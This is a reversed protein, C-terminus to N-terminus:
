YEDGKFESFDEEVPDLEAEPNFAKYEEIGRKIFRFIYPRFVYMAYWIYAPVFFINPLYVVILTWTWKAYDRKRCYNWVFLYIIFYYAILGIVGLLVYFWSSSDMNVLRIFFGQNNAATTINATSFFANSKGMFKILARFLYFVQQLFLIAFLIFAATEYPRKNNVIADKERSFQDKFSM